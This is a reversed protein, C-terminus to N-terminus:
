NLIFRAYIMSKGYNGGGNSDMISKGIRYEGPTLKGYLWEWSLERETRDGPTIIYAIDHFGYDGELAVPVSEWEGDRLRELGFDDGYILEGAPANEDFQSFVLTAGTSSINKLSFSLGLDDNESERDFIYLSGERVGQDFVLTNLIHDVQSGYEGWWGDVLHTLVVIGKYDEDFTIFDWYENNDYTGVSASKGAVTASEEVLGTGCVGFSEVYAVTVYGEEVGEPFFKVGYEGFLLGDSDVPCTEFKWGTPLAISIEGYPGGQVVNTDVVDLPQGGAAIDLIDEERRVDQTETESRSRNSLESLETESVSGPTSECGSFIMGMTLMLTIAWKRM